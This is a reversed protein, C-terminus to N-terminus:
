LVRAEGKYVLGREADVTVVDGDALLGTAGEAGVVAPLGLSLAVVAAHSTMGGEEAILAGAKEIWPILDRHSAPVVMIDGPRFKRRADQVTRVVCVRGSASRTGIGTGKLLIDGVTHVKLMNTTGPVGVPVGATIVVLDGQKIAGAQLACQIAEDITEDISARSPAVLPRVGWVLCLQRAVTRDPTVAVVPAQPRFRAVMRATYGSRTATIIAAARLDRATTCTAYSIAGTVTTPEALGRRQLLEGWELARETREAIRAMVRVAEVPYKGVATEASLMVADTGDFIANAVDTAEARTPRPREVMSELMQTATIVPKGVRGAHGIMEKQLLPVEETPFEVGLDGRAVMLGDSVKLIEALREVGASSEVKAIVQASSGVQELLRRVELVDDPSRVFSVAVFDMGEKAALQLDRVDEESLVPLRIAVGPLSVKKRELLVGPVVVRCCVETPSSEEVELVVKGDDLLIRDGPRVDEPLAPYQVHAKEEDGVVEQTTLVFRRGEQLMVQGGQLRGIRIEPGRTDLLWGIERGTRAMAERLNRLRPLHEEWRGHSLNFRAVDMGAMLLSELTDVATTAPGLTCVIKTRRV